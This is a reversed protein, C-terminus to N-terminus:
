ISSQITKRRFVEDTSFLLSLTKVHWLFTQNKRMWDLTGIARIANEGLKRGVLHGSPVYKCQNSVITSYMNNLKGVFGRWYNM